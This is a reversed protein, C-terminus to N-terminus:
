VARWMVSASFSAGGDTTILTVWAAGAISPKGGLGWNVTGPFSTNNLNSCYLLHGALGSPVNTFSLGNTGNNALVTGGNTWDATAAGGAGPAQTNFLEAVRKFTGKGQVSNGVDVGDITGGTISVGTSNQTSMTGLGHVSTGTAALHSALDSVVKVCKTWLEAVLNFMGSANDSATINNNADYTFNNTSIVNATYTADLNDTSYQWQVSVLQFGSWTLKARLGWLATSNWWTIYQPRMMDLGTGQTRTQLFGAVRGMVIGDRLARIDNLSSTMGASPAQSGQPNNSDLETYPM